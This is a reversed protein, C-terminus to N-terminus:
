RLSKKLAEHLDMSVLKATTEVLTQEYRSQALVGSLLKRIDKFTGTTALPHKLIQELVISLATTGGLSELVINLLKERLLQVTFFYKM